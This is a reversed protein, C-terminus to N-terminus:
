RVCKFKFPFVSCVESCRKAFMMLMMNIAGQLFFLFMTIILPLVSKRFVNALFFALTAFFLPSLVQYVTSKMVIGLTLETKSGDMVIGGIIMSIIMNAFIIFVITLLVTIYKSFLVTMRKRPRILLQKITGKQFEDTIMRSAITIGFITAFLTILGIESSAFDLYSGKFETGDGWKLMALVGLIELVAIVGILIYMGKKAHLKLFENQILKLMVSESGGTIALFEDELTKNQVTVGYVLVDDNVLKKVLQPIEEKTVSVVIVNGQAKGQVIENAKQVQDVEFAVVVTEDHKAQEHLNYEQVFEGQKIIVVRDCMLEIESLLHSSVIVAINEEKALRQLYDRIQRIGAPDLGNTPEDLILIKPQHLLAQAIGLRQKMGLSYTKVKKIFRM